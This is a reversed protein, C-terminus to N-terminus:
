RGKEISSDQDVIFIITKRGNMKFKIAISTVPKLEGSEPLTISLDVPRVVYLNSDVPGIGLVRDFFGASRLGFGAAVLVVAGILAAVIRKRTKPARQAAPVPAYSPQELETSSVSSPHDVVSM